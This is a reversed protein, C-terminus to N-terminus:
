RPRPLPVPQVVGLGQARARQAALTEKTAALNFTGVVNSPSSANVPADLSSPRATGRAVAGLQANLCDYSQASGVEVETCNAPAAAPQAAAPTALLCLVLARYQM